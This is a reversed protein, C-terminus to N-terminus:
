EEADVDVDLHHYDRNLYLLAHGSTRSSLKEVRGLVLTHDGAPFSAEPRCEFRVLCEKLMPVGHEDLVAGGATLQAEADLDPDAFVESIRDQGEMLVHVAFRTSDLLLDHVRASRQVNFSVLPPELSVTVFSGITIGRPEAGGVTVVTVASPVRRMAARIADGTVAPFSAARTM